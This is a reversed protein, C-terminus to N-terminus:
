PPLLASEFLLRIAESAQEVSSTEYPVIENIVKLLPGQLANSGIFDKYATTSLIFGAPVPLGEAAIAALSSGKGGALHLSLDPSSLSLILPRTSVLNLWKGAFSCACRNTSRTRTVM